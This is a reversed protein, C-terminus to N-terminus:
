THKNEITSNFCVSNSGIIIEVNM